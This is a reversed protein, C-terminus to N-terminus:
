RRSGEERNSASIAVRIAGFPECGATGELARARELAAAMFPESPRKLMASLDVTDPQDEPSTESVLEIASAIGPRSLEARLPYEYRRVLWGHRALTGIMSAWYWESRPLVFRGQNPCRKVRVALREFLEIHDSPSQSQALWRLMLANAGLTRPGDHTGIVWPPTAQPPMGPWPTPNARPVGWAFAVALAVLSITTAWPGPRADDRASSAALAALGVVFLAVLYKGSYLNMVPLLLPALLVAAMLRERMTSRRWRLFAARGYLLPLVLWGPGVAFLLVKASNWLPWIFEGEGFRGAIAGVQGLLEPRLALVVLAAFAGAAFQAAVSRGPAHPEARAALWVLIPSALSYDLRLMAALAFLLGSLALLRLPRPSQSAAIALWLAAVFFPLGLATTNLYLATIWLESLSVVACTAVIWARMGSGQLWALLGLLLALGVAGAVNAVASMHHAPWGARHLTSLLEYSLPQWAHRYVHDRGLVDLNVVGAILALDDGEWGVRNGFRLALAVALAAAILM